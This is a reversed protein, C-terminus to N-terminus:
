KAIVINKILNNKLKYKQLYPPQAYEM